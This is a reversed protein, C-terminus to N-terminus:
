YYEFTKEQVLRVLDEVTVWPHVIEDEMASSFLPHREIFDDHELLEIDFEEEVAMILDMMDMSDAGLDRALSAELTVRDAEVELQDVTISKIKDFIEQNIGNSQYTKGTKAFEKGKQHRQERIWQKKEEEAKRKAEAEKERRVQEIKRAEEEAKRKAEAEAQIRAEEAQKAALIKLSDIRANVLDRVLSFDVKYGSQSYISAAINWVLDDIRYEILHLAQNANSPLTRNLHNNIAAKLIHLEYSTSATNM